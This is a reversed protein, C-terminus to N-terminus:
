YSTDTLEVKGKFIRYIIWTYAIVIPMGILAIILMVLLTKQTSSANYITLSFDLDLSSPVLRPYLSVAALGIMSLIMLSSGLFALFYRGAHIAVPTLIYGALLLLFILWFIVSSLITEFLFPAAFFTFVTTLVFLVITIVWFISSYGIMKQQLEGDSKLTM